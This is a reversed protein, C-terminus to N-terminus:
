GHDHGQEEGGGFDPEPELAARLGVRYTLQVAAEATVRFVYGGKGLRVEGSGQELALLPEGRPRAGEFVELRAKAAPSPSAWSFEFTANGKHPMSFLQDRTANPLAADFSGRWEEELSRAPAEQTVLVLQSTANMAGKADRAIVSVEWVGARDFTFEATPGGEEVQGMATFTSLTVTHWVPDENTWTLETGPAVVLDRPLFWRIEWLALHKEEAPAGPAVLITGTMWPHPHCHYTYLGPAELTNTYTDGPDLPPSDFGNPKPEYSAKETSPAGADGAGDEPEHAHAGGAGEPAESGHFFTGWLYTVEDGDPDRTAEASAAVSEGLGLWRAAVELRPEPARNAGSGVVAPRVRSAAQGDEATVTLTVGYAVDDHAYRHEVVKGDGRAGDGFDWAYRLGKGRSPSADFTFTTGRSGEEPSVTFDAVPAGAEGAALPGQLPAVCGALAVLAGAGLVLGNGLASGRAGPSGM